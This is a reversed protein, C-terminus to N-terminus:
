ILHFGEGDELLCAHVTENRKHNIGTWGVTLKPCPVSVFFSILIRTESNSALKGLTLKKNPKNKYIQPTAIASNDPDNRM